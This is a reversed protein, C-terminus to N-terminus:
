RGHVLRGQWLGDYIPLASSRAVHLWDNGEAPGESSTASGVAREDPDLLPM